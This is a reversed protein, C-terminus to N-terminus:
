ALRARVRAQVPGAEREHLDRAHRSRTSAVRDRGRAGAGGGGARVPRSRGAGPRHLDRDAAGLLGRACREVHVHRRRRGAVPVPRGAHVAARGDRRRRGLHRGRQDADARGRRHRAELEELNPARGSALLVSSVRLERPQSGDRPALTAVVDDGDRRTKSVFTDTVIEVGEDVLAAHLEESADADSKPAIRELADVITVRSGFRAFTQGFELGVAGGGLVLLSEPLETLELASVHDVWGIEDIGDIPPVATRSGTAVLVREAELRREGVAVTHADVFRGAGDVTTFGADRLEQVWKPQAKLLADKRAKVRELNARAPGVEIGLLDALSNVDHVLDAAVVYAKTPRCAVNPCSGGWRTREVLAVSAGYEQAAKRAGDRAASGSGLV